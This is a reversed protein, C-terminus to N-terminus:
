RREEELMYITKWRDTFATIDDMTINIIASRNRLYLLAEHEAWMLRDLFSPFSRGTRDAYDLRRAAMEDRTLHDPLRSRLQIWIDLDGLRDADPHDCQELLGLDTLVRLIESPPRPDSPLSDRVDEAPRPLFYARMIERAVPAPIGGISDTRAVQMGTLTAVPLHELTAIGTTVGPATNWASSTQCDWLSDGSGALAVQLGM